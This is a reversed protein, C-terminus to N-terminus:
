SDPVQKYEISERLHQRYPSDEVTYGEGDVLGVDFEPRKMYLNQLSFNGDTM